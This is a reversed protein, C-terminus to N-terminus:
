ERLLAVTKKPNILLLKQEDGAEDGGQKILRIVETPDLAPKIALVKAALNVVNPSSMSTGSFKMHDGGPVYSDVEFGSAYVTVTRGFSTFGTADGAQDVAGVVLLNPLDFSSPIMEDFEVDNDANGASTVFLIEPADKMAEYLADRQIGFIKRSLEAREETTEGVGNAELAAEIGQRSEGWSMNVVRVGHEQFYAVTAKAAAASQEAWEVTPCKPIIHYDFTLRAVLIRIFPNGAAAIGAVHTGHAYNGFLGFDEFFEKFEEPKLGALMRKAASAEASDIAAQVDMFGKMYKQIEAPDRNMADVPHLLDPTPNADLDYAIGHLDDVYGNGDTDRSDPQENPNEWLQGEYVDTDVGSDWIAVVVPTLNEDTALTVDRAAWIDPKEVRNEDIVTKYVAVLENRLPLVIDLAYRARILSQAVDASIEGGSAAVIPELRNQISGMIVNETRIEAAGKRQEIEDGCIDWPLTRVKRLLNGAFLAHFKADNDGADRRAAVYAETTLGTTLRAAPKDELQRLLIVNKLAFDYRGALMDLSLLVSYFRRLTTHDDIQYKALDAEIDSRVQRALAEFQADSELLETATGALQYTHRPLEDLSRVPIKEQTQPKESAKDTTACGVALAALLGCNLVWGALRFRRKM